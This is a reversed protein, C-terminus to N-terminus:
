ALNTAAFEKLQSKQSNNAIYQLEAQTLNMGMLIGLGEREDLAEDGSSNCRAVVQLVGGSIAAANAEGAQPVAHTGALQRIEDVRAKPAEIQNQALLSNGGAHNLIRNNEASATADNDVFDEAQVSDLLILFKRNVARRFDASDLIDSKRSQLSLDVPIWTSPITIIVSRGKNGTVTLLMEGRPQTNNIVFLRTDKSEEVDRLKLQNISALTLKTQNM